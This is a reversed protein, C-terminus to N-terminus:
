IGDDWVHYERCLINKMFWKQQARYEDFFTNRM